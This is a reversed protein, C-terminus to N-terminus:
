LGYKDKLNTKFNELDAHCADGQCGKAHKKLIGRLQVQAARKEGRDLGNIMDLIEKIIKIVSPIAMIIQLILLIMGM